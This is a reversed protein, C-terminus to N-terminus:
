PRGACAGERWVDGLHGGGEPKIAVGDCVHHFWGDLARTGHKCSSGGGLRGDGAHHDGGRHTTLLLSVGSLHAHQTHTPRPIAACPKSWMRSVTHRDLTLTHLCTCPHERKSGKGRVCVRGGGGGGAMSSWCLACGGAAARHSSPPGQVRWGVVGGATNNGNVFM